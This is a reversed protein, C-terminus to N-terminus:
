ASGADVIRLRSRVDAQAKATTRQDRQEAVEDPAVEWRLRLMALPSLGLRDEVQRVEAAVKPEGVEAEALLVVYRAVVRVMGPGLTEWAAAQPTSWLEAWIELDCGAGSLPWPPPDGKRGEAPLRTIVGNALGRRRQANPKPAAGMGAM